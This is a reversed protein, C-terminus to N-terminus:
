AGEKTLNIEQQLVLLGKLNMSGFACSIKLAAVTEALIVFV